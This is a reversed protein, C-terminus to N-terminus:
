YSAWYLPLLMIMLVTFYMYGSIMGTDIADGNAM